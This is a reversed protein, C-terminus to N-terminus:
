YPWLMASQSNNENKVGLYVHNDKSPIDLMLKKVELPPEECLYIHVGEELGLYKLESIEILESLPNASDKIEWLGNDYIRFGDMSIWQNTTPKWNQEGFEVEHVMPDGCLTMKAKTFTQITKKRM